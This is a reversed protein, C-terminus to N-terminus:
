QDDTKSLFKDARSKLAQIKKSASAKLNESAPAGRKWDEWTCSFNRHDRVISEVAEDCEQWTKMDRVMILNAKM